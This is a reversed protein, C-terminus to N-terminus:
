IQTTDSFPWRNSGHTTSPHCFVCWFHFLSSVLQKTSIYLRVYQKRKKKTPQRKQQPSKQQSWIAIGGGCVCKSTSKFGELITSHIYKPTHIKIHCAKPTRGGERKTYAIGAQETFGPTSRGSMKHAHAPRHDQPRCGHNLQRGAGGAAEGGM